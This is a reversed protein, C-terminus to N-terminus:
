LSYPRRSQIANNTVMIDEASHLISSAKKWINMVAIYGLVNCRCRSSCSPNVILLCQNSSFAPLRAKLASVSRFEKVIAFFLTVLRDYKNIIADYRPFNEPEEYRIRAVNRKLAKLLM